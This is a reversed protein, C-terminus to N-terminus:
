SSIGARPPERRALTGPPFPRRALPEIEQQGRDLMVFCPLRLRLPEVHRHPLSGETEFPARPPSAGKGRALM